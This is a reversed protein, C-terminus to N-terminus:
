ADGWAIAGNSHKVLLTRGLTDGNSPAWYTATGNSTLYQGTNGATGNSTFTGTVTFNNVSISQGNSFGSTSWYVASGNSTLTQGATGFSGNAHIGANSNFVLESTSSIVLNANLNITAVTISTIATSNATVSNYVANAIGALNALDIAETM